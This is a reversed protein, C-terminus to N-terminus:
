AERNIIGRGIMMSIMLRISELSAVPRPRFLEMVGSIGIGITFTMPLYIGRPDTAAINCKRPLIKAPTSIRPLAKAPM